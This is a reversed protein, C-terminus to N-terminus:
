NRIQHKHDNKKDELDLLRQIYLDIQDVTIINMDLSKIAKEEAEEYTM